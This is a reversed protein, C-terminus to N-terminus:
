KRNLTKSKKEWKKQFSQAFSNHLLDQLTSNYSTNAALRRLYHKASDSNKDKYEQFSKFYFGPGDIPRNSNQGFLPYFLASFIVAMLVHKM